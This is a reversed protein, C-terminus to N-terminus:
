DKVSQYGTLYKKVFELSRIKGFKKCHAVCAVQLEQPVDITCTKPLYLRKITIAFTKHLVTHYLM